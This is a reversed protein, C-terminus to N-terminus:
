KSNQDLFQHDDWTKSKMFLRNVIAAVGYKSLKVLTSFVIRNIKKKTFLHIEGYSYYNLDFRRAIIYLTKRSYFSIHQGHNFGYYWWDNPKPIAAPLLTTSFFINNSFSLMREIEDIPDLLHEFVEFVTIAEFDKQASTDLEFGRAMLNDSYKDSWYFDYGYDRMLRTFIGYGGAYDLFRGIKNFFFFIISSVVKGFYLNRDLIGTDIVNIPSKYSEELWYPEETFLFSCERCYYYKVDYKHLVKYSFKLETEKNCIKCKM